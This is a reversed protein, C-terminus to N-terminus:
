HVGVKTSEDCLFVYCVCNTSAKVLFGFSNREQSNHILKNVQHPRCEFLVTHRLPDWVVGEVSVSVCRVWSASVCLLVSQDGNPCNMHENGAGKSRIGTCKGSKSRTIEAVVWPLMAMTTLHHVPLSGILHLRYNIEEEKDDIMEGWSSARKRATPHKKLSAPSSTFNLLSPCSHQNSTLCPSGPIKDGRRKVEFYLGEMNQTALPM